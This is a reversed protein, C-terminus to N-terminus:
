LTIGGLPENIATDFGRRGIDDPNVWVTTGREFIGRIVQKMSEPIDGTIYSEALKWYTFHSMCRYDTPMTVWQRVAYGFRLWYDGIARMNADSLVKWRLSIKSAGHIMNFAEGGFQGSTSPQILKADQIKSLIGGIALSYDGRQTLRALALNSDANYGMQALTVDQSKVSTTNRNQQQLQAANTSVNTQLLSMAASTAGGVLGAPGGTASGALTGIAGIGASNWAQDIGINTSVADSMRSIDGQKSTAEMAQGAQGFATTSGAKAREQSWDASEHQYRISNANSQLYGISGNNVIPFTPFSSVQTTMDLYEGGDDLITYLPQDDAGRGFKEELVSDPRANYRIPSVVVRQGPPVFSAKENIQADPDAWSEPKLLIPTGTNTTLQLIMYPSTFFKRLKHYKAPFHSLMDVSNRWDPFLDWLKGLGTQEVIKNVNINAIGPIPSGTMDVPKYSYGYRKPNPIAGIYTFGQTIYPYNSFTLMFNQFDVPSEFIYYEAGSPMGQMTDGRATLLPNPKNITGPDGNIINNSVVLIAFGDNEDDEDDGTVSGTMLKRSRTEVVQYEGGIDLGEPVTLYDRGFNDFQKENAIGQHGRELYAMGFQVRHHYTAWADLTLIFRTNGPSAWQVENIFYYYYMDVDDPSASAPMTPNKVRMYNFQQARNISVPLEIPYGPKAYSLETIEVSASPRADLYDNIETPNALGPLDRYLSDWPVNTLLATTDMDWVDYNFDLGADYEPPKEYAPYDPMDSM